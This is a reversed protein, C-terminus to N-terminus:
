KKIAKLVSKVSIRQNLKENWVMEDQPLEGTIEVQSLEFEAEEGRRHRIRKGGNTVIVVQGIEDYVRSAFVYEPPVKYTRLAEDLLSKEEKQMTKDGKFFLPPQVTDM